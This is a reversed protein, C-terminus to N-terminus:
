NRNIEKEVIPLISKHVAAPTNNAKVKKWKYREALFLHKEQATTWLIDDGENRHGAEKGTDFRKGYLMIALDAPYLGRNIKELFDLSLGRVMGWSIGTGTYDEAIVWKGEKLMKELTPEYDKRNKAYLRQIKNETLKHGKRLVANLLPGTPELDYIPYKIHVVPIRKNQLAKYLMEVQLSKGLNNAGYIVIFKGKNM